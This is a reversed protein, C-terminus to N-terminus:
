ISLALALLDTRWSGVQATVLILLDHHLLVKAVLRKGIRDQAFHYNVETFTFCELLM